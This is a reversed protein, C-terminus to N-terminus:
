IEMELVAWQVIEPLPNLPEHKLRPQLLFPFIM